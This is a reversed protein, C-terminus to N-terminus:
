QEPEKAFFLNNILPVYKEDNKKFFQKPVDSMPIGGRAQWARLFAMVPIVEFDHGIALVSRDATAAAMLSAIPPVFASGTDCHDARGSGAVFRCCWSVPDGKKSPSGSESALMPLDLLVKGATLRM